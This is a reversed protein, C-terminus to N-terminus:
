TELGSERSGHSRSEADEALSLSGTEDSELTTRSSLRRGRDDDDNDGLGELEHGQKRRRRKAAISKPLLKDLGHSSNNDM